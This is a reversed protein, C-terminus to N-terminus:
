FSNTDPSSLSDGDGHVSELCPLENLLLYINSNEKNKNILSGYGNNLVEAKPTGKGLDVQVREIELVYWEKDQFTVRIAM